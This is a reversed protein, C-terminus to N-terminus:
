AAKTEAELNAVEWKLGFLEGKKLRRLMTRIEPRFWAVIAIAVIPWALSALATILDASEKATSAKRMVLFVIAVVAVPWILLALAHARVAVWGWFRTLHPRITGWHDTLTRSRMM